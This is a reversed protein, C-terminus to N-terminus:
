DSPYALRGEQSEAAAKPLNVTLWLKVREALIQNLKWARSDIWDVIGPHVHPAAHAGAVDTCMQQKM